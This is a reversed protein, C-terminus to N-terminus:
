IGNCKLKMITERTLECQAEFMEGATDCQKDIDFKAADSRGIKSLIPVRVPESKTSLNEVVWRHILMYRQDVTTFHEINWSINGGRLIKRGTKKIGLTLTKHIKRLHPRSDLDFPIVPVVMTREHKDRIKYEIPRELGYTEPLLMKFQPDGERYDASVTGLKLKILKHGRAEFEEHGWLGTFMTFLDAARVRKGTKYNNLSM